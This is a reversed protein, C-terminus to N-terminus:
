KWTWRQERWWLRRLKWNEMKLSKFVCTTMPSSLVKERLNEGTSKWGRVNINRVFLVWHLAEKSEFANFLQDTRYAFHRLNRECHANCKKNSHMVQHLRGCEKLETHSSILNFVGNPV